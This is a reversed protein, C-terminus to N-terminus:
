PHGYKGSAFVKVDTYIEHGPHETDIYEVKGNKSLKFSYGDQLIMQNFIMM